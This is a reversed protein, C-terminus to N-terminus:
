EKLKIWLSVLFLSLWYIRVCVMCGFIDKIILYSSKGFFILIRYIGVVKLNKNMFFLKFSCKEIVNGKLCFYNIVLFNLYCFM